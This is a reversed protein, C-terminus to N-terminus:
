MRVTSPLKLQMLAVNGEFDQQNNSDADDLKYNHGVKDAISSTNLIDHYLNKPILKANQSSDFKQNM